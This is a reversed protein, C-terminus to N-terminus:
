ARVYIIISEVNKMFRPYPTKIESFIIIGISSMIDLGRNSSIRYLRRDSIIWFRM